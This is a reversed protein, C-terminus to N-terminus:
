APRGAVAGLSPAAHATRRDWHPDHQTRERHTAMTLDLHNRQHLPGDLGASVAEVVDLRQRLVAGDDDPITALDDLSTVPAPVPGDQRAPDVDREVPHTEDVVVPAPDHPLVAQDQGRRVAALGPRLL